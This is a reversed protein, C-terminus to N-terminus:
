AALRYTDGDRQFIFGHEAQCLRAATAVVTKLVPELEGTSSSIVRLVDATATLEEVSRALDSTRQRLENLRRANEIAIVAQDAFTSVLAIQKDDFARVEKRHLGFVGVPAGERLLPVGLVTRMGVLKEAEPWAYSPDTQVDIVQVVRGELVTRGAVT